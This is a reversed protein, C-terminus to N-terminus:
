AGVSSHKEVSGDDPTEDPRLTDKGRAADVVAEHVEENGAEESGWEEVNEGPHEGVAGEAIGVRWKDKTARAFDRGRRGEVIRRPAGHAKDEVFDNAVPVSAPPLLVVVDGARAHINAQGDRGNDDEATELQRALLSGAPPTVVHDRRCQIGVIIRKLRDQLWAIRRKPRGLPLANPSSFCYRAQKSPAIQSPHSHSSIPLPPHKAKITVHCVQQRKIFQLFGSVRKM